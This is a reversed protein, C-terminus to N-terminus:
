SLHNSCGKFHLGFSKHGFGISTNLDGFLLQVEHEYVEDDM